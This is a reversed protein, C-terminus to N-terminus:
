VDKVSEDKASDAAEFHTGDGSLPSPILPCLLAINWRSGCIESLTGKWLKRFDTIRHKREYATQGRSLHLMQSYLMVSSGIFSAVSLASMTGTFFSVDEMYGSFYAPVPLIMSFLTGFSFHHAVHQVYFVLMVNAYLSGCWFCLLFTLFSRHNTYGICSGTFVCHHDRRLVCTGCAHCHSARPPANLECYSCYTWGARLVGPLKEEVSRISADRLVTLWFSLETNLFLLIVFVNHALHVNPYDEFLVPFVRQLAFWLIVPLGAQVTIFGTREHPARPCLRKRWPM